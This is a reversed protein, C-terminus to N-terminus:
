DDAEFYVETDFLQRSFENSSVLSNPCVETFPFEKLFINRQPNTNQVWGVKKYFESAQIMHILRGGTLEFVAKALDEPM